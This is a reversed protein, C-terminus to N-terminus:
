LCAARRHKRALRQHEAFISGKVHIYDSVMFTAASLFLGAASISVSLLVLKKKISYNKFRAFINM